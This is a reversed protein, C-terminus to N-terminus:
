DILNQRVLEPIVFKEIISGLRIGKDRSNIYLSEVVESQAKPESRIRTIYVRMVIQMGPDFAAEDEFTGFYKQSVLGVGYEEKLERKLCQVDTENTEIRGGPITFKNRGKDRGVLVKKDRLIIAGIKCIKDISDRRTMLFGGSCDSVTHWDM